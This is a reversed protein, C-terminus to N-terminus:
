NMSNAVLPPCHKTQGGFRASGAEVDEAAQLAAVALASSVKRRVCCGSMTPRTNKHQASRPVNRSLAGRLAAIQGNFGM